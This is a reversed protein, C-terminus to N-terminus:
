KLKNIEALIDMHKFITKNSISPASKAKMISIATVNATIQGWEKKLTKLEPAGTTILYFLLESLEEVINANNEKGIYDTLNTQLETIMSLIKEKSIIKQLM